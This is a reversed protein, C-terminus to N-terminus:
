IPSLLWQVLKVPRQLRGLDPTSNDPDRVVSPPTDRPPAFLRGAAPGAVDLITLSFRQGDRCGHGTRRDQPYPLLADVATDGM